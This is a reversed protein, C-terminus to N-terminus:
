LMKKASQRLSLALALASAVLAGGSVWAGMRVSRPKFEFVVTHEGAPVEVARFMINVPLIEIPNGDLAAQWGPYYTDTLVLWGPSALTAVIEVREPEYKVIMAQDNASPQGRSVKSTELVEFTKAQAVLTKAPDFAPNQLAAIAEDETEVVEAQHVIFARPLVARNEYIKVDGSHVQRYDGETTLLVSRSTTTPQHILSAGRLVFQGTPLTATVSIRNVRRSAAQSDTLPYVAIYDAGGAEYPWAVGIKAQPHAATASYVGEATDSGARLILTISGGDAFALSVEAVSVGAPLSAAGELHSVLGIATAPFDPIEQGGPLAESQVGIEGAGRGGQGGAPASITQGSALRASFQLDYFIDDIWVDFQKDTIIWRTNLLSLLRGPPVFRLKERLRGDISLDGPPLFLKQLTVFQKLPLLGGDYGDVSYLGYVLPLNFFLVEKEKTAVILNYLAKESLSSGFIQNLERLDGPDYTIGSLSLFRGPPTQGAPPDAALLYAPANRLSSYAQPATPHNYTLSQASFFLESILVIFLIIIPLRSAHHTIRSAHFTFRLAYLMILALALWTTLTLIPPMRWALLVLLLVLPLGVFIALRWWRTRLWRWTAALRPRTQAPHLLANLGFGALIAAAFAYLLLWRAPVRFLAFGPVVYYLVPYPWGLSLLLGSGALWLYRRIEPRWLACWSGLLALILGSVGVYAVWEGFAEGLVQSLDLGLPPLLTYLLMSPQLRFSVAERLTLGESRISLGSLEATPLLQVAALAAALLAAFALPTLHRFLSSAFSRLSFLSNHIRFQSNWEGDAMRWESSRWFAYLGLGFLSIFVTQTHGALLTLAVALALLLFWFWRRERALGFDYLLFLLPLWAAANLQNIHEVQAGLYGGFAFLIASVLSAPWSLKLSQRAYALMFGGALAIHLGISWTVQRPPDFWLFLWNLPYFLGVQSNALLPAGMFLHPNWLPLRGQRLAESAYAKYPYFYLFTDVGALILNTLLIKWFFLLTLTILAIVALLYTLWSRTM